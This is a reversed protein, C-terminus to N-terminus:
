YIYSALFDEGCNDVVHKQLDRFSRAEFLGQFQISFHGFGIDLGHSGFKPAFGGMIEMAEVNPHNPSEAGTPLPFFHPSQRRRLPSPM